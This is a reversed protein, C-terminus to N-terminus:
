PEEHSQWMLSTAAWWCDFGARFAGSMAEFFMPVAMTLVLSRRLFPPLDRVNNLALRTAPNALMMGKIRERQTEEPEDTEEEDM